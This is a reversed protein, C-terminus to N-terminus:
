GGPAGARGATRALRGLEEPDAAPVSPAAPRDQLMRVEAVLEAVRAEAEHLRSEAQGLKQEASSARDKAAQLLRPTARGRPRRWGSSPTASGTRSARGCRPSSRGTRRRRRACRRSSSGGAGRRAEGAERRGQRGQRDAARRPTGGMPQFGSRTALRAASIHRAFWLLFLELFVVAGALGLLQFARWPQSTDEEIPRFRQDVSLVADAKGGGTTLPSTRRSCGCRCRRATPELRSRLGRVRLHTGGDRVRVSSTDGASRTGLRDGDDTSYILTADRAFIRLRVVTSGTLVERELKGDLTSAVSSPLEGGLDADEVIPAITDEAFVVARNIEEISPTRSRGITCSRHASSSWSRSPACAASACGARGTTSCRERWGFRSGLVVSSPSSAGGPTSRRTRPRGSAEAIHGPLGRRGASMSRAKRGIRAVRGHLRCPAPLRSARRRATSPLLPDPRHTTTRNADRAATASTAAATTSIGVALLEPIFRSTLGPNSVPVRPQTAPSPNASCGNARRGRRCRRRTSRCRRRGLRRSGPSRRAPRPGWRRGGAGVGRRDPDAVVPATRRDGQLEHLLVAAPPHARRAAVGHERRRPLPEADAVLDLVVPADARSRRIKVFRLGCLPSTHKRSSSAVSTSSAAVGAGCGEGEGVSSGVSSGVCVSGVGVSSGLVVEEDAGAVDSGM